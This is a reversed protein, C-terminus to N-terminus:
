FVTYAWVIALETATIMVAALLSYVLVAATAAKWSIKPRVPIQTPMSVETADGSRLGRKACTTVSPSDVRLPRAPDRM